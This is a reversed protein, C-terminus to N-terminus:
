TEMSLRVDSLGPTSATTVATLFKQSMGDRRSMYNQIRESMEEQLAKMGELGPAAMALELKRQFEQENAKLMNQLAIDIANQGQPVDMNAAVQKVTDLNFDSDHAGTPAGVDRRATSTTSDQSRREEVQRQVESQAGHVEQPRGAGQEVKEVNDPKDGM